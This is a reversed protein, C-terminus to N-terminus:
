THEHPEWTAVVVHGISLPEVQRQRLEHIFDAPPPDALSDTTGTTADYFIAGNEAVVADFLKIKPFAEILDDLQRGSELLLKRSTRRLRELAQITSESVQGHEALTGDYDCALAFYQM